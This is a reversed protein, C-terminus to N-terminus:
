KGCCPCGNQNTPGLDLGAQIKHNEKLIRRTDTNANIYENLLRIAKARDSDNLRTFGAVVKEVEKAM